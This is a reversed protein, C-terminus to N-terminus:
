KKGFTYVLGVLPVVDHIWGQLKAGPVPTILKEPPPTIYDRVEARVEWQPKLTLKVGGGASILPKIETTHTLAAFQILPQFTQEAGTGQYFKVGAGVAVFPRVPAGRPRAHVLLDYHVLHTRASFRVDTGGQSLKMSSFQVLYRTEGGLLRSSNMGALLGAAGGQAFGASASASGSNVSLGFSPAAWGGLAGFGYQAPSAAPFVTALLLVGGLRHLHRAMWWAHRASFLRSRMKGCALLSNLM